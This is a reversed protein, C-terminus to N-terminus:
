RGPLRELAFQVALDTLNWLQIDTSAGYRIPLLRGDEIRYSWLENHKLGSAEVAAVTRELVERLREVYAASSPDRLRGASDHAAAINRALGLLLLNVERGWVVRPSHYLDERFAARVPAAAYVDSAVLPGLEPVFLGLPYALTLVELDRLTEAPRAALVAPDDLFLRTAPDTNAVAVPRGASDLAVALFRVNEINEGIGDLREMWFEREPGPLDALAAQARSRAEVETLVVEFHRRAGRWARIAAHLGARDRVHVLLADLDDGRAHAGLDGARFGLTDLAALIRDMSELALPVWIVNVDMAFRGNGYGAGSDRWSGPAWRGGDRRAFSILNAASPDRSYPEASRAVFALNRLLRELRPGAGEEAPELLFARRRDAPVGPDALWRAALVPLQFDDDVMHYNERVAQLRGLTARARDLLSDARM